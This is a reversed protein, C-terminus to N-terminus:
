VKLIVTLLGTVRFRLKGSCDANLWNKHDKITKNDEPLTKRSSLHVLILKLSVELGTERYMVNQLYPSFFVLVLCFFFCGLFSCQLTRIWTISQLETIKVQNFGKRLCFIVGWFSAQRGKHICIEKATMKLFWTSKSHSLQGLCNVFKKRASILTIKEISMFSTRCAGLHSVTSGTAWPSSYVISNPKAFNTCM